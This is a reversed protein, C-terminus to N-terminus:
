PSPISASLFPGFHFVIYIVDGHNIQQINKEGNYSDDGCRDNHENSHELRAAGDRDMSFCISRRRWPRLSRHLEPHVAWPACPLTRAVGRTTTPDLSKRYGLERRFVPESVLASACWALRAM